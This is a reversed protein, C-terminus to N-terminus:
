ICKWLPLAETIFSQFISYRHKLARHLHATLALSIHTSLLYKNKVRKNSVTHFFEFGCFVIDISARQVTGVNPFKGKVNNRNQVRSGGRCCVRVPPLLYYNGVPESLHRASGIKSILMASAFTLGEMRICCNVRRWPFGPEQRSSPPVITLVHVPPSVFTSGWTGFSIDTIFPMLDNTHM